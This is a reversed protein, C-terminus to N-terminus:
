VEVDLNGASFQAGNPYVFLEVDSNEIPAHLYFGDEKIM